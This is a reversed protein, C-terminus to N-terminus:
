ATDDGVKFMKKHTDAVNRCLIRQKLTKRQHHGSCVANDLATAVSEVGAFRGRGKSRVKHHSLCHNVSRIGM